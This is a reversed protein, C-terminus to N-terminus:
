VCGTLTYLVILAYGAVLPVKPFIPLWKPESPFFAPGCYEPAEVVFAESFSGVTSGEPYVAGVLKCHTGNALGYKYFMNRTLM